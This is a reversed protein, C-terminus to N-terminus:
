AYQRQTRGILEHALRRAEFDAARADDLSAIPTAPIRDLAAECLRAIDLFGVGGELFALM